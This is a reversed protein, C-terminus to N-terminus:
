ICTSQAVCHSSFQWRGFCCCRYGCAIPNAMMTGGRSLEAIREDAARGAEALSGMIEQWPVAKAARILLQVGGEIAGGIVMGELAFKAKRIAQPDTENVFLVDMIASAVAGREDEGQALCHKPL